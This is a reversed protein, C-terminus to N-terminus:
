SRLAADKKDQLCANIKIAAKGFIPYGKELTKQV